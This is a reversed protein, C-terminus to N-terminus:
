EQSMWVFFHFKACSWMVLLSLVQSVFWVQSNCLCSRHFWEMRTVLPLRFCCTNLGKRWERKPKLALCMLISLGRRSGVFHNCGGQSHLSYSSEKTQLFVRAGLVPQEQGHTSQSTLVHILYNPRYQNKLSWASTPKWSDRTMTRDFWEYM